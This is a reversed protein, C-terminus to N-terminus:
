VQQEAALKRKREYKQWSVNKRTSQQLFQWGFAAM